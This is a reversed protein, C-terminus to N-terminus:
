CDNTLVLLDHDFVSADPGGDKIYLDFPGCASHYLQVNSPLRQRKNPSPAPYKELWPLGLSKKHLCEYWDGVFINVLKRYVAAQKHAYASIGLGTTADVGKPLFTNRKEWERTLWEFFALTRRM